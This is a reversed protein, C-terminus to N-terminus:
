GGVDEVKGISWQNHAHRADKCKRTQYTSTASSAIGITPQQQAQWRRAEQTGYCGMDGWARRGMCNVYLPPIEINGMVLALGRTWLDALTRPHMSGIM